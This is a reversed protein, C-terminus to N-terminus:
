LGRRVTSTCFMLCAPNAIVVRNDPPDGAVHTACGATAVCAGLFLAWAVVGLALRLTFTARAGGAM